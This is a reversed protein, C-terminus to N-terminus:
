PGPGCRGAAVTYTAGSRGARTVPRAADGAPGHRRIVLAAQFPRRVCRRDAAHLPQLPKLLQQGVAGIYRAHDCGAQARRGVGDAEVLAEPREAGGLVPGDVADRAIVPWVAGHLVGQVLDIGLADLKPERCRRTRAVLAVFRVPCM